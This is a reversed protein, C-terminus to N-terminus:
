KYAMQSLRHYAKTGEFIVGTKDIIYDKYQDVIAKTVSPYLLTIEEKKMGDAYLLFCFCDISYLLKNYHIVGEAETKNMVAAVLGGLHQDLLNDKEHSLSMSFVQVLCDSIFPKIHISLEETGEGWLEKPRFDTTFVCKAQLDVPAVFSFEKHFKGKRVEFHFKQDIM